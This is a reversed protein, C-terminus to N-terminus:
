RGQLAGQASSNGPKSSTQASRVVDHLSVRTKGRKDAIGGFNAHLEKPRARSIECRITHWGRAATAAPRGARSPGTPCARANDPGASHRVNGGSSAAWVM